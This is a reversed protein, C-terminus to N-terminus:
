DDPTPEVREGSLLAIAADLQPDPPPDLLLDLDEEEAWARLDPLLREPPEFGHLYRLVRDHMQLEVELEVDPLLGYLSGETTGRQVNRHAPTYYYSTTLKAIVSREPYRRITQVLGKGYTPTGVLVAARHDQLAGALVESASASRGDILVVLPMDAYLARAEDAREFHPTGRGETSTIVGEPVFRRALDVAAGLVGGGNGRLDVVLGNLGKERLGALARDFEGVSENTFAVLGVYGTGREGDLLRVRRVSPVLLRDRVVELRREVGDRGEVLMELTSGEPGKMQASVAASDLEWTEVGDIELIRDGVRLGAALAPSDEVPFRVVPGDHHNTVVGIGVMQGTTDTNVADFQEEVYYESFEDLGDLMGRLASELLEQEDVEGVFNELVLDRVERYHEIDDEAGPRWFQLVFFMLGMGFFTGTVFLLSALRASADDHRFPRPRTPDQVAPPPAPWLTALGPPPAHAAEPGGTLTTRTSGAALLGRRVHERELGDGEM